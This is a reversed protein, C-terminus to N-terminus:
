SRLLQNCYANHTFKKKQEIVNFDVPRDQMQFSENLTYNQLM